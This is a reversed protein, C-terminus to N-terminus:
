ASRIMGNLRDIWTVFDSSGAARISIRDPEPHANMAFRQAVTLRRRQRDEADDSTHNTDVERKMVHPPQQISITAQKALGVAKKRLKAPLLVPAEPILKPQPPPESLLQFERPLRQKPEPNQTTINVERRFKVSTARPSCKKRKPCTGCHDGTIRYRRVWDKAKGERIGSLYLLQGDPCTLTTGDTAWGAHKASWNRLSQAETSTVKTDESLPEIAVLAVDPEAAVVVETTRDPQVSTRPQQPKRNHTDPVAAIGGLVRLNWNAMAVASAVTQGPVSYSFVRNLGFERNEAAFRNEIATRGYYLTVADCAAWCEKPMTTIFLEYRWGDITRGTGRQNKPKARFRSVIVRVDAGGFMTRRGLDLAERKPGSRSDEVPCWNGRKLKAMSRKNELLRYESSRTLFHLGRRYLEESQVHGNGVGDCVVVSCALLESDAGGVHALATDATRSILNRLSGNGPEIDLHLWVASVADQLVSRSFQVDGRKRGPYGPSGLDDVHRHPQPLDDGEPLARKRMTNVTTDWHGVWWAAGEGDFYGTAACLPSCAVPRSSVALLRKSLEQAFGLEVASFARSVSGQTMWCRRDGIAALESGLEGSREAFSAISEGRNSASFFCCLFLLLDCVEYAGARRNLVQTAAWAWLGSTKLLDMNLAFENYGSALQVSEGAARLGIKPDVREGAEVINM